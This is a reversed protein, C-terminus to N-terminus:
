IDKLEWAKQQACLEYLRVYSRYRSPHILGQEVAEKVACGPEKLHACDTFRCSGLFPRFDAFDAALEEKAISTMMELEFSSFGPTDAIYGGDELAFLEVHRTTHKGRGLKDSVEATKANLDPFIRNLLSSKGVGSNGTFASTKGALLGILKDVGEGTEASTRLVPFGARVCIDFIEDAPDLDTKNVCVVLRCGAEEAIVSVRDILFPDTIPNSGAAVFVLQDINAVAPRIFWNKRELVQDIRGRNRSEPSCLVRDGVLPSTGDLRFKGRAKCELMAEATQVYYFGSLAKIIRGETMSM